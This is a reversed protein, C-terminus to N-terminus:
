SARYERNGHEWAELVDIIDGIEWLRETVKAAMAPTRVDQCRRAAARDLRRGISPGIEAPPPAIAFARAALPSVAGWFRARFHAGGVSAELVACLPACLDGRRIVPASIRSRVVVYGPRVIGDEVFSHGAGIQYEHQLTQGESPAIGEARQLDVFLRAVVDNV